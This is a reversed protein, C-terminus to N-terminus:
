DHVHRRRLGDPVHRERELFADETVIVPEQETVAVKRHADVLRDVADDPPEALAVDPVAPEVQLSSGFGACIWSIAWPM